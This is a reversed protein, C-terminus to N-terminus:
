ATECDIKGTKLFIDFYDKDYLSFNLFLFFAVSEFDCKEKM